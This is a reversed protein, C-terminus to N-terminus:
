YALSWDLGVLMREREFIPNDSAVEDFSASFILFLENGNIYGLRNRLGAVLQYARDERKSALAPDVADYNRWGIHTRAFLSTDINIQREWELGLGISDYTYVSERANYHAFDLGVRIVDNKGLSHRWQSSLGFNQGEAENSHNFSQQALKLTLDWQHPGFQRSYGSSFLGMKVADDKFEQYYVGAVNRLASRPGLARWEHYGAFAEARYESLAQIKKTAIQGFWNRELGARDTLKYSGSVGLTYVWSEQERAEESLVLEIESGQFIYPFTNKSPALDVNTDYAVGFIPAMSLRQFPVELRQAYRKILRREDRTIPSRSLEDLLGRASRTDGLETYCALLGILSLRRRAGNESEIARQFWEIASATEGRLYFDMARAYAQEEELAPRGSLSRDAQAFLSSRMSIGDFAGMLLTIGLLMRKFRFSVLRPHM